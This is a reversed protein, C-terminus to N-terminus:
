VMSGTSSYEDSSYGEESDTEMTPLQILQECHPCEIVSPFPRAVAVPFDEEIMSTECKRFLVCAFITLLVIMAMITSEVNYEEVDYGM